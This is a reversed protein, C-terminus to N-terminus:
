EVVQGESIFILRDQALITNMRKALCIVTATGRFESELLHEIITETEDDIAGLAEEIIVIKADRLIARVLGIM